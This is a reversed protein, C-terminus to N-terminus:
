KRDLTAPTEYFAPRSSEAAGAPMGVGSATLVVATATATLAAVFRNRSVSNERSRDRLNTVADLRHDLDCPLLSIGGALCRRLRRTVPSTVFKNPQRTRGRGVDSAPHDGCSVLSVS